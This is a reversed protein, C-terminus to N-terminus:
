KPPVADDSIVVQVDYLCNGAEAKREVKGLWALGALDKEVLDAGRQALAPDRACTMIRTTRGAAKPVAGEWVVTLDQQSADDVSEFWSSGALARTAHAADREANKDILWDHLFRVAGAAKHSVLEVGMRRRCGQYRCYYAGSELAAHPASSVLLVRETVDSLSARYAKGFADCATGTCSTVAVDVTGADLSWTGEAHTVGGDAKQEAVYRGGPRFAVHQAATGLETGEFHDQLGATLLLLLLPHTM